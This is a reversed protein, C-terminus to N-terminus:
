REYVAVADILIQALSSETQYAGFRVTLPDGVDEETATYTLTIQQFEGTVSTDILTQLQVEQAAFTTEDAGNWFIVSMNTPATVDNRVAVAAVLTYTKGTEMAVVGATARSWGYSQANLYLAQNGDAPAALPSSATLGLQAHYTGGSATSGKFLGVEVLWPPATTVTYDGATLAPEEHDASWLLVGPDVSEVETDVTETDVVDTEAVEDTEIVETDLDEGPKPDGCAVLACLSVVPRLSILRV